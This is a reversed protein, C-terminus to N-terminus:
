APRVEARLIQGTAVDRVFTTIARSQVTVGDSAYVKEDVSSLKGAADYTLVAEIRKVGGLTPKLVVISAVKGGSRNIVVDQSDHHGHAQATQGSHSAAQALTFDPADYWNTKGIIEKIRNAFWSAWQWLKAPGNGTPVLGPDAEPYAEQDLVDMNYNLDGINVTDNAEPKRLGLNPTTQM